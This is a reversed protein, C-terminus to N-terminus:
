RKRRVQKRYGRALKRGEGKAAKVDFRKPTLATTPFVRRRLSQAREHDARARAVHRRVISARTIRTRTRCASHAQTAAVAGM